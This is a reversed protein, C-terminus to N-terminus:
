TSSRGRRHSGRGRRRSHGAADRREAEARLAGSSSGRKVSTPSTRPRSRTASTWPTRVPPGREELDAELEEIMEDLDILDVGSCQSADHRALDGTWKLLLRVRALDDVALPQESLAKAEHDLFARVRVPFEFQEAMGPMM